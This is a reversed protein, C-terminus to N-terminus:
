VPLPPTQSPFGQRCAFVRMRLSARPVFPAGSCQRLGQGPNFQVINSNSSTCPSVKDWVFIESLVIPIQKKAYLTASQNFVGTIYDVVNQVTKKNKYIDFDAEVYIRVYKCDSGSQIQQRSQRLYSIPIIGKSNKEAYLIHSNRDNEGGLRSLVFNGEEETSYFGTIENKFVSIAAISDPVGKVVGRYHAGKEYKIPKGGSSSTVVTFDPTYIDVKILELDVTGTKVGPLSLTFVKFENELIMRTQATNLNLIIGENLAEQSATAQPAGAITMASVSSAQSQFLNIIPFTKGEDKIRQVLNIAPKESESQAQVQLNLQPTDESYVQPNSIFIVSLCLIFLITRLEKM